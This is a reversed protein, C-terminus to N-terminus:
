SLSFQGSLRRVVPGRKDLLDMIHKECLQYTDYTAFEEALRVVNNRYEEGKLVKDVGQKLQQVTPKETNLNVGLGFYGARATIENKGEHLGALVMPLGHNIALMVGGYGGNTVYVDALPM